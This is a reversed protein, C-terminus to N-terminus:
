GGTPWLTNCHWTTKQYRLFAFECFLVNKDQVVLHDRASCGSTLQSVMVGNKLSISSSVIDSEEDSAAGTPLRTSIAKFHCLSHRVIFFVNCLSNHSGCRVCQVMGFESSAHTASSLAWRSGHWAACNVYGMGGVKIFSPRSGM